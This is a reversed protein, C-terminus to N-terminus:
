GYFVTILKIRSFFIYTNMIYLVESYFAVSLSLLEDGELKYVQAAIENQGEDAGVM